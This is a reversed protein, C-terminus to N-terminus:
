LAGPFCGRGVLWSALLLRQLAISAQSGPSRKLAFARARLVTFGVLDIICGSQSIGFLFMGFFVFMGGTETGPLRMVHEAVFPIGAMPVFKLLSGKARRASLIYEFVKCISQKIIQEVLM